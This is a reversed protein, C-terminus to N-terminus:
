AKKQWVRKVLVVGVVVAGFIGGGILWPSVGASSSASGSGFAVNWGSNDFSTSSTVGSRSESPAGGPSLAKGLVNSGANIWAATTPDM